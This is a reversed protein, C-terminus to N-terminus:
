RVPLTWDETRLGPVRQFDVTNRTLLTFDNALAIAAIRLDMTGIRVKQRRLSEFQVGAAEDFPLVQMQGFEAMVRQLMQYAFVVDRQTKPRSLSKYWGGLQEHFSIITTFVSTDPVAALRAQLFAFETGQKRQVFTLHDSDLVFM